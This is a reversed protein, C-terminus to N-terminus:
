GRTPFEMAWGFVQLYVVGVVLACGLAALTAWIHRWKARAELARATLWVTLFTLIM